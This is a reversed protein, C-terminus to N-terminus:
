RELEDLRLPLKDIARSIERVTWPTPKRLVVKGEKDLLVIMFDRPHLEIRLPGEADPNTDTLIVVDRAELEPMEEALMELQSIFRPDNPSDAFVVLVRSLWQYSSLDDSAEQASIGAPVLLSMILFIGFRKM